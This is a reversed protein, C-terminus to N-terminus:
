SASSPRCSSRRSTPQKEVGDYTVAADRLTLPAFQSRDYCRDDIPIYHSTITLTVSRDAVTLSDLPVSLPIGAEDAAPLDVRQVVRGDSRVELWGQRFDTPTSLTGTLRRAQLGDPVPLTVTVPASDSPFRIDAPRGLEAFPVSQGTVVTADTSDQASATGMGPLLVTIAALTGTVLAALTRRPARRHAGTRAM